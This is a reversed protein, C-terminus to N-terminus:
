MSGVYLVLMYGVSGVDTNKAVIAKQMVAFIFEVWGTVPQDIEIVTPTGEHESDSNLM